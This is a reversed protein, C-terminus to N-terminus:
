FDKKISLFEDRTIEGRAYREQLIELASHSGGSYTPRGKKNWSFLWRIGAVIGAVILAWILIMMLIGWWGGGGYGMMWPGMHWDGYSRPQAFAQMPNSVANATLIFSALGIYRVQQFAKM